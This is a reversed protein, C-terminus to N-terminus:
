DKKYNQLIYKKRLEILKKACEAAEADPNDFRFTTLCVHNFEKGFISKCMGGCCSSEPSCNGCFDINQFAVEKIREDSIACNYWQLDSTDSEDSWIYWGEPEDPHKATGYGNVLIFCVYKDMFKIIFYRKDEWYGTGKEVQMKQEKLYAAFDLAPKQADATLFESICSELTHENM